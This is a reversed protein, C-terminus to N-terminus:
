WRDYGCLAYLGRKSARFKQGDLVAVADRVYDESEGEGVTDTQVNNGDNQCFYQVFGVCTPRFNLCLTM